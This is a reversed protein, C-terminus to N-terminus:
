KLIIKDTNLNAQVAEDKLLFNLLFKLKAITRAMKMACIM